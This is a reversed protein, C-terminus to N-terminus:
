FPLRRIQLFKLCSLSNQKRKLKKVEAAAAMVMTGGASASVDRLLKNQIKYLIINSKFL